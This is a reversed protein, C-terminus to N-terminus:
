VSGGGVSTFVIRTKRHTVQVAHVGCYAFAYELWKPLRFSRHALNGHYSLTIGFLGTVVYLACAVGLLGSTFTFPALLCLAHMLGLVGMAVVDVGSWWPTTKTEGAVADPVTKPSSSCLSCDFRILNNNSNNNNNNHTTANFKVSIAHCFIINSSQARARPPCRVRAPLQTPPSSSLTLLSM